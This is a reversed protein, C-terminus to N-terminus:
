SRTCQNGGVTWCSTYWEENGGGVLDANDIWGGFRWHLHPNSTDGANGYWWETGSASGIKSWCFCGSGALSWSNATQFAEENCSNSATVFTYANGWDYPPDLVKQVVDGGGALNKLQLIWKNPYQSTSRNYLFFQYNGSGINGLYKPKYDNGNTNLVYYTRRQWNGGNPLTNLQWWYEWGYEIYTTSNAHIRIGQRVWSPFSTPGFWRPSPYANPKLYPSWTRLQLQVGRTNSITADTNFTAVRQSILWNNKDPDTSQFCDDTASAPAVAMGALLGALVLVFGLSKKM